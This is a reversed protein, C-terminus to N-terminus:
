LKSTRPVHDRDLLRKGQRKEERRIASDLEDAFPKKILQKFIRISKMSMPGCLVSAALSSEVKDLLENSQYIGAVFGCALAEQAYMKKGMFLMETARSHGMKAPFTISSGAIPNLGYRFFPTQFWATDSCYVIDCLGLIACGVGIAPGNVVGVVLKPSDIISYYFRTSEHHIMNVGKNAMEVLPGTADLDAGSSFVTGANTIVVCKIKEELRAQEMLEALDVYLKNDFSNKTKPHDITIRLIGQGKENVFQSRVRSTAQMPLANM